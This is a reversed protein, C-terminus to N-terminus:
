SHIIMIMQEDSVIVLIIIIVTMDVVFRRAQHSKLRRPHFNTVTSVTLAFILILWYRFLTMKIKVKTPRM